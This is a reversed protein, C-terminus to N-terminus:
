YVFGTDLNTLGLVNWDSLLIVTKDEGYEESGSTQDQGVWVMM